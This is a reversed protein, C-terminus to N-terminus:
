FYCGPRVSRGELDVVEADNDKLALIEENTGVKIIKGNEIAVAEVVEEKENVTIVNGNFYLKKAM